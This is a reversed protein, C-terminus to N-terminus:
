DFRAEDETDMWRKRFRCELMVMPSNYLEFSCLICDVPQQDQDLMPARWARFSPQQELRPRRKPWTGTQSFQQLAAFSPLPWRERLVKTYVLRCIEWNNQERGKEDLTLYGADLRLTFTYEPM